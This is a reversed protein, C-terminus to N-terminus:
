SDISSPITQVAHGVVGTGCSSSHTPYMLCVLGHARINEGRVETRNVVAKQVQGMISAGERRLKAATRAREM